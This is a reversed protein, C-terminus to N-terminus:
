LYSLFSDRLIISLIIKSLKWEEYTPYSGTAASEEVEYEYKNGNRMPLILVNLTPLYAKQGCRTEM